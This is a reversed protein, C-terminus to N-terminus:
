TILFLITYSLKLCRKQCKTHMIVNLFTTHNAILNKELGHHPVCEICIQRLFDLLWDTPRIDKKDQISDRTYIMQMQNEHGKEEFLFNTLFQIMKYKLKLKLQNNKVVGHIWNRHSQSTRIQLSWHIHTLMVNM